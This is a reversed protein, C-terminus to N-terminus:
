KPPPRKKTALMARGEAELEEEDIDSADFVSVDGDIESGDTTVVSIATNGGATLEVLDAAHHVAPFCLLLAVALVATWKNM